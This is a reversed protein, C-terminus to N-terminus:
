LSVSTPLKVAVYPKFKFTLVLHIKLSKLILLFVYLSTVYYFRLVVITYVKSGSM